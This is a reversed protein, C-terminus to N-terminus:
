QQSMLFHFSLQLAGDICNLPTKIEKLEIVGEGPQVALTDSVLIFDHRGQLDLSHILILPNAIEVLVLKHVINGILIFLNYQYIRGFNFLAFFALAILFLALRQLLRTFELFLPM